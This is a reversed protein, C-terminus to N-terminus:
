VSYYKQKLSTPKDPMTLHLKGQEVLPNLISVRFYDRNKLGLFEQMESRSRPEKCFDLLKAQMTAQNTSLLRKIHTLNM